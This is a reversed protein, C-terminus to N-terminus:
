ERAFEGSFLHLEDDAAGGRPGATARRRVAVFVRGGHRARTTLWGVQEPRLDVTYNSTAKYEIWGEIGPYRDEFGLVSTRACYNSDPIGREVLGSEIAQWHMGSLRSRFIPRLGDDVKSM